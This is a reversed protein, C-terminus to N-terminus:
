SALPLTLHITTGSGVQSEAWVRGGHQTEVIHKVIALGLGAGDGGASRAETGRYFREFIHPLDAEAIGPGTDAVSIHLPSSRRPQASSASEAGSIHRDVAVRVSGGPPMYKLANELLNTLARRMQDPDVPVPPLPELLDVRVTHGKREFQPELERVVSRVLGAMDVPKREAPVLGSELRSLNLLQEVMHTLRETQTGIEHLFQTAMEPDDKAGGQLAEVWLKISTLPTRLEHSANAVFMRQQTLMDAVQDAMRNFARSMAGLEDVRNTDIRRDLDGAAIESAAQTARRVPELLRNALWLSIMGTALAVLVGPGVLLVWQRSAHAYLERQPM